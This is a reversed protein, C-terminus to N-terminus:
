SPSGSRQLESEMDMIVDRLDRNEGSLKALRDDKSGIAYGMCCCLIALLVVAGALILTLLNTMTTMNKTFLNIDETAFNGSKNLEHLLLIGGCSFKTFKSVSKTFKSLPLRLLGGNTLANEVM